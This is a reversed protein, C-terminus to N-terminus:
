LQSNDWLDEIEHEQWGAELMVQRAFRLDSETVKLDRLVLYNSVIPRLDEHYHEISQLWQMVDALTAMKKDYAHLLMDYCIEFAHHQHGNTDIIDFLIEKIRSRIKPTLYNVRTLADM